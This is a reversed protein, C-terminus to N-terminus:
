KFENKGGLKIGGKIKDLISELSKSQSEKDSETKIYELQMDIITKLYVYYEKSQEEDLEHISVSLIEYLNKLLKQIRPDFKEKIASIKTDMHNDKLEQGDLYKNVMKEFIRRLYAYAGVYFHDANSLDAKKYDEYANLEDLQKKYKDFDFGKVTLMSPNQGVKRVILKGNTLEISIMMNYNHDIDNTCTFYYHIYYIVNNLLMDKAYPPQAGFINGNDISLIAPGYQYSKTFKLENSRSLYGDNLFVIEKEVNFPFEKKCKHCYTILKEQLCGIYCLFQDLVEKDLQYEGDKLGFVNFTDKTYLSVENFLYNLDKDYM